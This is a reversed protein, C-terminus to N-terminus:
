QASPSISLWDSLGIVANSQHLKTIRPTAPSASVESALNLKVPPVNEAVPPYTKVNEQGKWSSSLLCWPWSLTETSSSKGKCGDGFAWNSTANCVVDSWPCPSLRHIVDSFRRVMKFPQKHCGFSSSITSPLILRFDRGCEKQGSKRYLKTSLTVSPLYKFAVTVGHGACIISAGSSRWGNIETLLSPTHNSTPGLSHLRTRCVVWVQLHLFTATSWRALQM